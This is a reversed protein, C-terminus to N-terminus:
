KWQGLLERMWAGVDMGYAANLREECLVEGIEGSIAPQGRKLLLAHTGYKKALSLDHVVSMVAREGEELWRHVLEFIQKQYILDLHNTPEDLVLIDTDQAFLQALFVRQLEGGSLTLVSQSALHSVGTLEMADRIHKEGGTDYGFFGKKYAYRGLEVVERVTFSYGVTHNQSLFGMRGALAASKLSRINDGMCFLAGTYPVGGSLANVVTSKGAGNPGTVMLWQGSELSFSVNDLIKLEGYSVSLNKAELMKM